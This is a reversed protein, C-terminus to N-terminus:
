YDNHTSKCANQMLDLLDEKRQLADFLSALRTILANNTMMASPFVDQQSLCASILEFSNSYQALVLAFLEDELPDNISTKQQAAQQIYFLWGAIGLEIAASSRQNKLQELLGSLWRQPLKQSGDMAIQSLQHQLSDNEFRTLLQQSYTLLDQPKCAPLTPAVEQQMYHELFVRIGSNQMAQAVSQYGALQGLYALLSHSGNLMRLKMTEYTSVDAVMQVGASEWQPRGSPFNEEVVWHCFAECKVVTPTTIGTDAQIRQLDEASLAPVIRDVMSSPFAVEAEIWAALLADQARAMGLVANKTRIGNHPMNDCSLVTFAPIGQSHRQKLANVILGLATKPEDPYQIDHVVAPSDLLLDGSSPSLYYGKETVTLTVIKTSPASMQALLQQREPQNGAFFAQKIAKIERVVLHQSDTYEVVPYCYNAAELQEVLQYNSRINASAIMWDGSDQALTKELYVAQHGRHFAGLGIHVLGVQHQSPDLASPIQQIDM